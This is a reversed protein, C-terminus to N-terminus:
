LKQCCLRSGLQLVIKFSAFGPSVRSNADRSHLQNAATSSHQVGGQTAQMPFIALLSSKAAVAVWDASPTRSKCAVQVHYAVEAEAEAEGEVEGESELKSVLELSSNSTWLAPM